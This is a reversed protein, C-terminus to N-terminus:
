RRVMRYAVALERLRGPRLVRLRNTTLHTWILARRYRDPARDVDARRVLVLDHQDPDEGRALTMLGMDRALAEVAPKLRQGQWFERTEVEVHVLAVKEVIGTLGELVECAAGEVDIWLAVQRPAPTLREVYRDLRVADVMTAQSGLSDVNRPRTSSIGRRIDGADGADGLREVWFPRPGDANWVLIPAVEIDAAAVAPNRALRDLNCPNGEFAVIRAHPLRRRFRLADSADMSGVDCVLDPRLLTLLRDFLYKTGVRLTM